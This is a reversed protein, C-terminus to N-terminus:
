TELWQWAESLQNGEFIKLEAKVFHGFIKATWDMWKPGGVLAIKDFKDSHGRYYAFDDRAAALEYGEFEEPMYFLIKASSHQSLISDLKPILVEKYDSDTVKGKAKIGLVNDHSEPLIEIM